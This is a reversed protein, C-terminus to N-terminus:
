LNYDRKAKHIKEDIVSILKNCEDPDAQEAALELQQSLDGIEAFGYSKASGKVRHGIKKITQYDKESIAKKVIDLDEERTAFYKPLLKIILPDQPSNEQPLEEKEKIELNFVEKMTTYIKDRNIPKTIRGTFGAELCKKEEVLGAHATVAFIPLNKYNKRIQTIATYGDMVPMQIDMFIIDYKKKKVQECAELGNNAFDINSTMPSLIEKLLFLNDNSDDVALVAINKDKMQAQMGDLLAGDESSFDWNQQYRAYDQLHWSRFPKVLFNKFGNKRILEMNEKSFNSRMLAFINEPRCQAQVLGFSNIMSVIGISDDLLILPEKECKNLHNELEYINSVLSVDSSLSKLYDLVPGNDNLGSVYIISSKELPYLSQQKEDNLKFKLDFSFEAGKDKESKVEIHSGMLEVIEKCISLGLGSGGFRRKISSDEQVFSLFIDKTKKESIGIGTDKVSFRLQIQETTSAEEDVQVSLAIYGKATFKLANNLFNLLVQELRIGDGVMKTPIRPDMDVFIELGKDHAQISIVDTVQDVLKYLNFPGSKIKITRSELGSFDVLNNLMDLLVHSSRQLNNVYQTQEASLKTSKLIDAMGIISNMPNRIEHSIRSIFDSRISLAENLKQVAPKFGLFGQIVLVFLLLVLFSIDLYILSQTTSKIREDFVVSVEDLFKQYDKIKELAGEMALPTMPGQDFLQNSGFPSELHKWCSATKCFDKGLTKFAKSHNENLSSQLKYIRSSINELKEPETTIQADVVKSYLREVLAVQREITRITEVTGLQESHIAFKFSQFVLAMVAVSSLAFIYVATLNKQHNGIIRSQFIMYYWRIRSFIKKVM